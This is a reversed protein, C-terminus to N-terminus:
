EVKKSRGEIVRVIVGCGADCGGCSTAYWNEFATLVDESVRIRSQAEFEASPPPACGAWLVASSAAASGLLFQRRSVAFGPRAELGTELGTEPGIEPMLEDSMTSELMWRSNTARRANPRPEM